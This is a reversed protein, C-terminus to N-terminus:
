IRVEILLIGNRFPNHMLPANEQSTTVTINLKKLWERISNETSRELVLSSELNANKMSDISRSLDNNEKKGSNLKSCLNSKSKISANSMNLPIHDKKSNSRLKLTNEHSDNKRDSLIKKFNPAEERTITNLMSCAKKSTSQAAAEKHHTYFTYIDDIFSWIVLDNGQLIASQSWLFRSPM